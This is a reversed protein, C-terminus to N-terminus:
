FDKKRLCILKTKKWKLKEYFELGSKNNKDALLQIRLLNKLNAWDMIAELLKSGIKKRRYSEKVVVDEILGVKGGEATSILVQITSMGVIKGDQEAVMICCNDQDKLMMELGRYQLKENFSFDEEISFLEKLIEVLKNIDSNKAKKIKINSSMAFNIPEKERQCIRKNTAM